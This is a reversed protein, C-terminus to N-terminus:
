EGNLSRFVFLVLLYVTPLIVASGFLELATQFRQLALAVIGSIGALVALGAILFLFGISAYGRAWGDQLFVAVVALFVGLGGSYMLPPIPSSVRAEETSSEKSNIKTV